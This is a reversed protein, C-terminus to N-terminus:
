GVRTGLNEGSLSRSLAGPSRGDIIHSSSNNVLANVCAEIKPIMGGSITGSGSLQKAQQVTLRPILRRNRDLVGEVDTMFVMKEAALARAIEGAATDANINLLSNDYDPDDSSCIGVPAIVPIFGAELASEIPLTSVSVVEGVFGLAPDKVRSVLMEGDAGSMGLAKAGFARMEAVLQKNILGGLVAVVIQLSDRDTVRLGDRFVPRINQAAMWDSITKGGGHVVVPNYGEERLKVVDKLTTDHEGLTSGGIKVVITGNPFREKPM